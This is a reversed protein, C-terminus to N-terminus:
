AIWRRASRMKRGAGSRYVGGYLVPPEFNTGLRVDVTAGNIREVPPRPTIFLRRKMLPRWYRPRMYVRKRRERM